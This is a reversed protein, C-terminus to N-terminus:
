LFLPVYRWMKHSKTKITIMIIILNTNASPFAQLAFINFEFSLWVSLCIPRSFYVSDLQLFLLPHFFPLMGGMYTAMCKGFIEWRSINVSVLKLEGTAKNLVSMILNGGLRLSVDACIPWKTLFLQM